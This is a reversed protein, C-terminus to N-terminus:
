LNTRRCTIEIEKMEPVCATCLDGVALITENHCLVPIMDRFDKPIKREILLQKANEDGNELAQLTKREEEGKLPAPLIDSGGIYFVNRQRFIGLLKYIFVFGIKM